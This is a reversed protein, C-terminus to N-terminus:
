RLKEKITERVGRIGMMLCHVSLRSLARMFGEFHGAPFATFALLYCQLHLNLNLIACPVFSPSKLSVLLKVKCVSKSIIHM